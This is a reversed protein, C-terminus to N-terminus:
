AEQMQGNERTRSQTARRDTIRRAIKYQDIFGPDEILGEVEDDLIDLLTRAKRLLEEIRANSYIVQNAKLSYGGRLTAFTNIAAELGDLLEDSVQYAALEAQHARAQQLIQRQRNLMAEEAGQLLESRSHDVLIAVEPQNQKKAWALVRRGIKYAKGAALALALDKAQKAGSSGDAKVLQSLEIERWVEELAAVSESIPGSAAWVSRHAELHRKVDGMMTWSNLQEQNM